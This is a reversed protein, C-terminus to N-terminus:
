VPQGYMRCGLQSQMAYSRVDPVPGSPCRYVGPNPTFSFLLGRELLAANTTEVSLTMNGYVWSPYPPVMTAGWPDNVVLRGNNEQPYLYWALALQKHNSFCRAQRAKEKALSLAPLLLAALIAIIAIVVLLEILTFGM